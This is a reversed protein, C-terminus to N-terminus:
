TRKKEAARPEKPHQDRQCRAQLAAAAMKPHNMVVQKEELGHEYDQSPTAQPAHDRRHKSTWPLDRHLWLPTSSPPIAEVTQAVETYTKELQQKNRQIRISAQCRVKTRTDCTSVKSWPLLLLTNSNPDITQSLLVHAPPNKQTSRSREM